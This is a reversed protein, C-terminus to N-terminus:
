TKGSFKECWIINLDKNDRIFKEGFFRDKFTVSLGNERSLLEINGDRVENLAKEVKEADDDIINITKSRLDLKRNYTANTPRIYPQFRGRAYGGRGRTDGGRGRYSGGRNRFVGGPNRMTSMKFDEKLRIKDGSIDQPTVKNKAIEDKINMYEQSMREQIKPDDPYDLLQKEIYTLRLEYGALMKEKLEIIQQLKLHQEQRKQSSVNARLTVDGIFQKEVKTNSSGLFSKTELARWISEAFQKSSDTFDKLQEDLFTIEEEKGLDFNNLLAIIYDALADPDADSLEKSKSNLWQKFLSLEETSLTPM